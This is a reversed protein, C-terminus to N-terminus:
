THFYLHWVFDPLVNFGYLAIVEMAVEWVPSIVSEMGMRRGGLKWWAM